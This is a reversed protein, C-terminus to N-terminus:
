PIDPLVPIIIHKVMRMMFNRELLSVGFSNLVNMHFIGVRPISVYFVEVDFPFGWWSAM